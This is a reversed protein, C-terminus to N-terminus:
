HGSYWHVEKDFKSVIDEVGLTLAFLAMRVLVGNDTQRFIALNPNMNLDNDLENAETRSDRPLPHMIVTKSQFHKTYIQQNLRFKGRYLNAEEQSGFREEQVRTQYCIDADFNGEITESITYRHGADEIASLISDPMALEKPSILTFRINKFLCLLKSLSHVTRGYKLDGMMAIHLGDINGGHYLLEKQITYLDLLAQTPHENAGDGGNIVPVRSGQSFEAVSGSDPHRMTIIDSYGSLVRATDYLSEGKALASNSMGTTERVEGGLLNFATGFSVRTRTSPEFFLNGLIAGELVTTRKQRKAYPVMQNAVDFVREISERDFQNVSLIHSGEFKM